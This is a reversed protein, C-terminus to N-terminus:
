KFELEGDNNIKIRKLIQKKEDKSLPKLIKYLGHGKHSKLDFSTKKSNEKTEQIPEDKKKEPKSAPKQSKGNGQNKKPRYLAKQYKEDETICQTHQKHDNGQFTTSCDICTFYAGRCRQSHQDAKKKLMSENCIECSFTVM